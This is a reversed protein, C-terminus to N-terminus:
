QLRGGEQNRSRGLAERIARKVLVGVMERRYEASSRVDSIPRCAKMAAQAAQELLNDNVAEGSLIAEADPVRIPTPAVAGLAVRAKDCVGNRVSLFVAVGVVALDMARRPSLKIYAGASNPEPDPITVETVIEDGGVVTRGPGTFFDGIAVQRTGTPGAINVVAEVTLLAPATEASPSANCINGVTTGLNRVQRSGVLSAAGALHSFKELIASSSSVEQHTALAGIRIAKSSSDYAVGAMEPIQSLGIVVSPSLKQMKMAVLLDTGGAMVKAQPSHQALLSFAEQLSAPQLYQFRM